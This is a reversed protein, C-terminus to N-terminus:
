SLSETVQQVERPQLHGAARLSRIQPWTYRYVRVAAEEGYKAVDAAAQQKEADTWTDYGRWQPHVQPKPEAWEDLWCEGNLWTAPHKFDCYSPKNAKYAEIADLMIQLDTKKIARVFATRATGKSVRRPYAQWFQEFEDPM